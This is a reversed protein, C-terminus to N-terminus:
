NGKDIKQIADKVLNKVVADKDNELKKLDDLHPKAAPGAMGLTAVAISRQSADESRLNNVAQALQQSENMPPDPKVAAVGGCGALIFCAGFALKKCHM